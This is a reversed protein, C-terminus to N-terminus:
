FDPKMGLLFNEDNDSDVVVTLKTNRKKRKLIFYVETLNYTKGESSAKGLQFGHLSYDTPLGYENDTDTQLKLFEDKSTREIVIPSFRNFVQEYQQVKVYDLLQSAKLIAKPIKKRLDKASFEQTYIGKETEIEISILDYKKREEENFNKMLIFAFNSAPIHYKDKYLQDLNGGSVTIEFYNGEVEDTTVAKIGIGYTVNVNYVQNIEKVGAQETDSTCSAISFILLFLLINKM